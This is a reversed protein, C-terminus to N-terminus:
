LRAAEWEFIPCDRSSVLVVIGTTNVFNQDDQGIWRATTRHIGVCQHFHLLRLAMRLMSRRHCISAFLTLLIQHYDRADIGSPRM